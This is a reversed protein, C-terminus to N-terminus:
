GAAVRAQRIMYVGHGIGFGVVWCVIYATILAM